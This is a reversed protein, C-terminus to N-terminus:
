DVTASATDDQRHIFQKLMQRPVANGNPATGHYVWPHTMFVDGAEGTCEIVHLPHGQLSPSPKKLQEQRDPPGQKALLTKFWPETNLLDQRMTRTTEPPVAGPLRLLGLEDFECRQLDTLM